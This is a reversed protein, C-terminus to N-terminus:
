PKCHAKLSPAVGNPLAGCAQLGRRVKSLLDSAAALHVLANSHGVVGHSMCAKCAYVGDGELFQLFIRGLTFRREAGAWAAARVKAPALYYERPNVHAGVIRSQVPPPM